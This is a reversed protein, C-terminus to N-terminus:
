SKKALAMSVYQCVDDVTSIVEFVDDSMEIDFKTEIANVLELIDLSDLGFDESFRMHPEISFGAGVPDKAASSLKLLEFIVNDVTSRIEQPDHM